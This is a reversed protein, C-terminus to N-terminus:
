YVMFKDAETKIVRFLGGCGECAIDFRGFEDFDFKDWEDLEHEAGCHPCHFKDGAQM